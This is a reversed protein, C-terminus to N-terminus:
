NATRSFDRLSLMMEPTTDDVFAEIMDIKKRKLMNCIKMRQKIGMRAGFIVAVPDVEIYSAASEKSIDDGVTCMRWEKEYSWASQKNYLFQVHFKPNAKERMLPPTNPMRYPMEDFFVQGCDPAVDNYKVSDLLTDISIKTGHANCVPANELDNPDFVLVFGTHEGSYHAWMPDSLPQESFCIVKSNHIIQSQLTKLQTIVRCLFIERTTPNNGAELLRQTEIFDLRSEARVKEVNEISFGEDFEHVISSVFKNQDVYVLSDLPDNFYAPSSFYLRGKRLASLSKKNMQRYRFLYQPKEM